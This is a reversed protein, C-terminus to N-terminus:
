AHSLIRSSPAASQYRRGQRVSASMRTGRKGGENEGEGERVWRPGFFRPAGKVRGEEFWEQVERSQAPVPWSNKAAATLDPPKSGASTPEHPRNM